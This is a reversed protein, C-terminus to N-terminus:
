SGADSYCVPNDSCRNLGTQAGDSGPERLFRLYQSYLWPSLEQGGVPGLKEKRLFGALPIHGITRGLVSADHHPVGFLGARTRLLQFLLAGLPKSPCGALRRPSCPMFIKMRPILMGSESVPRDARGRIVNGIVIAGTQQDAGSLCSRRFRGRTFQARQEDMAIGIHTLGTPGPNMAASNNLCVTQHCHLAPM